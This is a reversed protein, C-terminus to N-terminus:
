GDGPQEVLTLSGHGTDLREVIEGMLGPDHEHIEVLYYCRYADVSQFVGVVRAEGRLGGVEVRRSFGVDLPPDHPAEILLTDAVVDLM